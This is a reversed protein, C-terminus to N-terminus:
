DPLEHPSQRSPRKAGEPDKAESLIVGCRSNDSADSIVSAARSAGSTVSPPTARRPLTARPRSWALPRLGCGASGSAPAGFACTGGAARLSPGARLAFRRYGSAPFPGLIPAAVSPLANTLGHSNATVFSPLRRRRIRRSSSGSGEWGGEQGESSAPPSPIVPNRPPLQLCPNESFPSPTAKQAGRV